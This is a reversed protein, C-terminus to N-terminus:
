MKWAVFYLECFQRERVSSVQHTDLAHEELKLGNKAHVFPYIQQMRTKQSLFGRM